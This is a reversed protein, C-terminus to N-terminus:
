RARPRDTNTDATWNIELANCYDLQTPSIPVRGLGASQSIYVARGVYILPLHYWALERTTRTGLFGTRVPVM